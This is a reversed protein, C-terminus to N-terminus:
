CRAIAIQPAMVRRPARVGIPSANISRKRAGSTTSPRARRSSLSPLPSTTTTPIGNSCGTAAAIADPVRGEYESYIEILLEQAQAGFYSGESAAREIQKLGEARNGSPLFLLLRLVKFFAPALEVYYNYLGLALYADGHEPHVKIYAQSYNRAKVGDRAAGWIGKDFDVRYRARMLYAQALYFLAEEDRTTRGHRKDALDILAYLRREFEARLPM